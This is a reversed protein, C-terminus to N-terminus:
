PSRYLLWPRKFGIGVGLLGRASAPRWLRRKEEAAFDFSEKEEVVEAEDLRRDADVDDMSGGRKSLLSSFVGQDVNM